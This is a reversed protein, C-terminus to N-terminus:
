HGGGETVLKTGRCLGKQDPPFFNFNREVFWETIHPLATEVACVLKHEKVTWAEAEELFWGLFMHLSPEDMKNLGRVNTTLNDVRFVTDLVVVDFHFIKSPYVDGGPGRYVALHRISTPNFLPPGPIIRKVLEGKERITKIKSMEIAKFM